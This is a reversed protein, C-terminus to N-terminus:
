ETLHRSLLRLGTVGLAQEFAADRIEQDVHFGAKLYVAEASENGILTVLEVRSLGQSRGDALAWDLLVTAYRRRRYEPLTAVSEVIWCDDAPRPICTFVHAGREWICAREAATWGCSAAVNDISIPSSLLVESARFSSLAAVPDGSSEIVSFRSYHWRSLPPTLTLQEVFETCGTDPLNLAVDFWGKKSHGRSAQLISWALFSADAPEARRVNKLEIEDVKIKEHM